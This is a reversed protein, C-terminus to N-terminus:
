TGHGLKRSVQSSANGSTVSGTVPQFVPSTLLSATRVIVPTMVGTAVPAGLIRDTVFIAKATDVLGLYTAGLTNGNVDGKRVFPFRKQGPRTVSTGVSLRVASDMYGPLWEGDDGAARTGVREGTPVAFEGYALGGGIEQVYITDTANVALSNSMLGRWAAKINNWYAEGVNDPDATLFAAGTLSYYQQTLCKQGLYQYRIQVKLLNSTIAM